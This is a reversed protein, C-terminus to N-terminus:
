RGDAAARLDRVGIGPQSRGGPFASHWGSHGRRQPASPCSNGSLVYYAEDYGEHLHPLGMKVKVTHVNTIGGEDDTTIRGPTASDAISPKRKTTSLSSLKGPSM